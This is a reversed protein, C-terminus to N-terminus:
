SFLRVFGGEDIPNLPDQINIFLPGGKYTGSRTTGVPYAYGKKM